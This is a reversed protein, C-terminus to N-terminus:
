LGCFRVMIVAATAIAEVRDDRSKARYILFCCLALQLLDSIMM